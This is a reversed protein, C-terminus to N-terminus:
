DYIERRKRIYRRALEIERNQLHAKEQWHLGISRSMIAFISSDDLGYAVLCNLLALRAESPSPYGTINGAILRQVKYDSSLIDKIRQNMKGSPKFDTKPKEEIEMGWQSPYQNFQRLLPTGMIFTHPKNHKWHPAEPIPILTNGLNSKDLLHYAEETMLKKAIIKKEGHTLNRNFRIYLYPSKGGHDYIGSNFNLETSRNFADLIFRVNTKRQSHECELPTVDQPCIMLVLPDDGRYIHNSDTYSASVKYRQERTDYYTESKKVVHVNGIYKNLYELPTM